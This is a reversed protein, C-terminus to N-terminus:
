NKQLPYIPFNKIKFQKREFYKVILFLAFLLAAGGIPLLDGWFTYLTPFHYLPLQSFLVCPPSPTHKNECPLQDVVKGLADIGCTLGTNCARLVPLGLELARLRGHFFHVLPLRSHPFWVDNTLNILMEAGKQRNERMLHGYTEEYCISIGANCASLPFVKAEKGPTFSDSIGYKSLIKKCWEFPIYEGMPLLIRKEYRYLDKKLPRVLIAANYTRSPNHEFDELGIIVDAGTFDALAQAWDRNGGREKESIIKVGFLDFFVNSIESSRYLPYHTGYPVTGEPMVIVDVPKTLHPALLSLIHRWQDIPSSPISGDIAFKEEPMLATQVLLAKIRTVDPDMMQHRHHTLHIFGYAYPLGAIMIWIALSRWSFNKFARLAVLNTLFVWFSLGFVGVVSVMQMGLLTASLSLGMPNLSYGSLIYLRSWECVAWGGSLGLLHIWSLKEPHILLTVLGFQVGLGLCLVAMFIYIYGGMYRDSFFWNLHVASCAGFWFVSFCFRWKRSSCRLAGIWFLTYGLCSALVCGALSWDPQASSVLLFAVLFYALETLKNKKVAM